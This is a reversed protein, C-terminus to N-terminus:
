LKEEGSGTVTVKDATLKIQSSKSADSNPKESVPKDKPAAKQAAETKEAEGKQKTQKVYGFPRPLIYKDILPTAINMILLAFSFGEPLSGFARILATFLAVGVAFIVNGKFTNPSTSYDTAMFVSGFVLGGSFLQAVLRLGMESATGGNPLVDFLFIFVAFSGILVLPTRFDIVRKVSLYIFGILIALVSTEGAASAGTRGLFMDLVLSGTVATNDTLWTAGTVGDLGISTGVAAFSAGFAIFLFIRGGCAPNAFNKGIGGFLMKCIIIAFVSGLLCAFVTDFSFALSGDSFFFNLGWGKIQMYAPLNLALIVATVAFSLDRVSSNLLADKGRFKKAIANYAVESFYCGLLCVITNIIVHYGFFLTAAALAPVLAILVDIMIKRVSNDGNIHPSASVHLENM